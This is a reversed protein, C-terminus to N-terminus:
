GAGQRPLLAMHRPTPAGEPLPWEVEAKPTMGSRLRGLIRQRATTGPGHCPDKLKVVQTGTTYLGCRWCWVLGRHTALKHTNHLAEGNITFTAGPTAHQPRLHPHLDSSEWGTAGPCVGDQIILKRQDLAWTKACIMCKQKTAGIQEIRHGLEELRNDLPPGRPAMADRPLREKKVTFLDYVALLRCQVLWATADYWGVDSTVQHKAAAEGAHRDALTNGKHDALSIKGQAVDEM